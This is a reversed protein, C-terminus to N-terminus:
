LRLKLKSKKTPRDILREGNWCKPSPNPSSPDLASARDWNIKIQTIGALSNDYIWEAGHNKTLVDM